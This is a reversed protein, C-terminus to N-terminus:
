PFIITAVSGSLFDLAVALGLFDFSNLFFWGFGLGFTLILRNNVFAALYALIGVLRQGAQRRYALRLNILM